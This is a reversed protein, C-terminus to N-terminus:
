MKASLSSIARNLQERQQELSEVTAQLGAVRQEKATLDERMREMQQSDKEVDAERREVLKQREHLAREREVLLMGLGAVEEERASIAIERERVLKDGRDLEEQCQNRLSTLEAQLAKKQQALDELQNMSKTAAEERAQLHLKFQDLKERREQLSTLGKSLAAHQSAVKNEISQAQEALAVTEDLKGKVSQELSAVESASNTLRVLVDEVKRQQEGLAKERAGLELAREQLAQIASLRQQLAGDFQGIREEYEGTTERIGAMIRNTVKVNKVLTAATEYLREFVEERDKLEVLASELYAIRALAKGRMGPAFLRFGAFPKQLEKVFGILEAHPRKPV